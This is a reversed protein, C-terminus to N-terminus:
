IEQVTVREAVVRRVPVVVYVTTGQRLASRVEFRGGLSEVRERMGVLGFHVSDGAMAETPDFGCGDDSVEMNMSAPEFRVRIRVESPQGHRVANYVAERAVMLVVHEVVGDLLVSKGASEFHVPVHSLHSVQKAIQEIMSAIQPATSEKRRLNWVATRAEDVTARVQDRASDLLERKQGEEEPELSVVAELLASASACGQIVTDHMERAIRNREELVAEFRKQVQGLRVRYALFVAGLIAATCLALFWTTRYIHPLWDIQLSAETVNEPMNMEFAQVQFEYEAPSLNTYYAVRNRLAETWEHDFGVLRYRFRIREQSRLRIAAYDIQLRGEGPPVILRGSTPAERGDVLVQEIAVQPLGGPRAQDPIIRVPGRNSPFWIEGNTTLCGAPQVGGYMQTAEVGDSLGYLTVAPLRSPDNAYRDLDSRTVSSIGDPGNMWFTGRSDELIQYISNSALGQASTYSTLKHDRWRFLGSGRTGFWLGGDRDEHITWVKDARLQGTVEDQVFTNNHMHNVGRETGIWIDGNSDELLTRISFYCLGDRVRYNTLTGNQWRTIGEDTGIWVSGDRTGLFARVFDNVLGDRKSYHFQESGKQLFVGYGETGIWWNNAQDRFVSRVRIGPQPPSILRSGDRRADIRYLGTTGVWLSGDRDAYITEFDANQSGPLPFTSMATRSLRLLGTQLGVWINQEDDEFVSLVTGSPPDEPTAVRSFRGTSYKILGGGITGIWLTRSNDEVLTRVTSSIETVREFNQEGKLDPRLRQLGSVTGVWLTGDSTELVSKVRNASRSGIFAFEHCENGQIMLLKSGGVWLRGNHDERISHVALAPINGKGDVRILHDDSFRFLGNDTGVWVTGRRDEYVSRVFGDSLGEAQSYSRLQGDRYKLLGGGETGAWLTGDHGAMLCFISNEHIQPTNERSFVVFRQGDFKVLGGSTGIWLYHDPTQAFAQVTNEPLGDETQWVRRTYGDPVSKPSLAALPIALALAVLCVWGVRSM